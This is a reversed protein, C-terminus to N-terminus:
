SKILSRWDLTVVCAPIYIKKLEEAPKAYAKCSKSVREHRVTGIGDEPTPEVGTDINVGSELPDVSM